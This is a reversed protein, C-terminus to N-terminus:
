TSQGLVGVRTLGLLVFAVCVVVAAAAATVCLLYVVGYGELFVKNHAAIDRGLASLLRKAKTGFFLSPRKLSCVRDWLLSATLLIQDQPTEKIPQEGQDSVNGAVM